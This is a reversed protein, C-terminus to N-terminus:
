EEVFQSLLMGALLLVLFFQLTQGARATLERADELSAKSRDVPTFQITAGPASRGGNVALRRAEDVLVGTARLTWGDEALVGTLRPKALSGDLVGLLPKAERDLLAQRQADPNGSPVVPEIVLPQRESSSSMLPHLARHAEVILRAEDPPLVVALVPADADRVMKEGLGGFAIGVALPFLPGLLFFIFSRSMVTATFDRRAVVLAARITEAFNM